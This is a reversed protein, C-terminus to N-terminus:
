FGEKLRSGEQSYVVDQHHRADFAFRHAAALRPLCRPRLRGGEQGAENGAEQHLRGAWGAVPVDWGGEGFPIHWFGGHLGLSPGGGPRAGSRADSVSLSGQGWAPSPCCPKSGGWSIEVSGPFTKDEDNCGLDREWHNNILFIFMKKSLVACLLCQQMETHGSATGPM